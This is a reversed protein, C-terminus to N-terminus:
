GSSWQEEPLRLYGTLNPASLCARSQLVIPDKHCKSGADLLLNLRKRTWESCIAQIMVEQHVDLVEVARNVGVDVAGLDSGARNDADGVVVAALALEDDPQGLRHSHGGFIEEGPFVFVSKSAWGVQYNTWCNAKM